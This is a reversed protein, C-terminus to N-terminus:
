YDDTAQLHGVNGGALSQLQAPGTVRLKVSAPPVSVSDRVHKVYTGVYVGECSDKHWKRHTM